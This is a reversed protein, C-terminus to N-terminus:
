AAATCCSSGIAGEPRAGTHGDRSRRWVDELKVQRGAAAAAMVGVEQGPPGSKAFGYPMFPQFNDANFAPLAVIIFLTLALLKVVAKAKNRRWAGDPVPRSGVEVRFGGLLWIRVEAAM